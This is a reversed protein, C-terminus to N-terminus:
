QCSDTKGVDKRIPLDCVPRIKGSSRAKEEQGPLSKQHLGALWFRLGSLQWIPFSIPLRCRWSFEGAQNLLGPFRNVVLVVNGIWFRQISFPM